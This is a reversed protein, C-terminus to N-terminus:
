EKVYESTLQMKGTDDRLIWGTRVNAKRGNKGDMIFDRQYLKGWANEGKLVPEVKWAKAFTQFRVVSHDDREYGLYERFARVKDKDKLSWDEIKRRPVDLEQMGIWADEYLEEACGDLAGLEKALEAEVIQQAPIDYRERIREVYSTKDRVEVDIVCKCNACEAASGGAWDGPYMMGNSFPEDMQVTEGNMAAHSARPTGSTTRWTKYVNEGRRRNQSCAEHMAFGALGAALAAGAIGARHQSAFAFVGRATDKLGKADVGAAELHGDTTIDVM